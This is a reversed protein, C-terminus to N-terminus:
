SPSPSPLPEDGDSALGYSGSRDDAQEVLAIVTAILGSPLEAGDVTSVDARVAKDDRIANLVGGDAAAATPGVAVAGVAAHDLDSAFRSLSATASSDTDDPTTPPTAALLVVLSGARPEDGNISILKGDEYAALVRGAAATGVPTNQPKTGLVQALLALARENGTGEAATRGPLALQDTLTTLFQDQQEDLLTSQLRVDGTVTAGADGLANIVDDRVDGDVDPASVVVVSQAALQDRVAYPLAARDFSQGRDLQDNLDSIQARLERNSASVHKARQELDAAVKGRLTTAGIFLGLALALFVAVISVVHYRFDIM